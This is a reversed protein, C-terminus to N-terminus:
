GRELKRVAAKVKTRAAQTMRDLILVGDLHDLEHQWCRALLGQARREVKAGTEDLATITVVPPRIVDGRIDPLSLCGESMPEVGGEPESIVPNIYVQPGNSASPLAEDEPEDPDQPVDCVFIRLGLGVQPAALGIGDETRMIELMQSAVSRIEDNV